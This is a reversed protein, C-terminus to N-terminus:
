RSLCRGQNRAHWSCPDVCQQLGGDGLVPRFPVTRVCWSAMLLSRCRRNQLSSKGSGKINLKPTKALDIVMADVIPGILTIRDAHYLELKLKARGGALILQGHPGAICM